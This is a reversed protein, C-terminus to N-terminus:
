IAGRSGVYGVVANLADRGQRAELFRVFEMATAYFLTVEGPSDYGQRSCFAEPAPLYDGITLVLMRGWARRALKLIGENEYLQAMGEHFWSPVLFFAGPGISRCMMAHVMEHLPARSHDSVRLVSAEEELPIAVSAQRPQCYAMGASWEMGRRARYQQMDRYIHLEIPPPEGSQPWEGELRRRAQEFEALTRDLRGRDLDEGYTFVRFEDRASTADLEIRSNRAGSLAVLGVAWFALLLSLVGVGLLARRLTWWRRARSSQSGAVVGARSILLVFGLSTLLADTLYLVAAPRIDPGLPVRDVVFPLGLSFVGAFLVWVIALSVFDRPGRLGMSIAAHRIRM